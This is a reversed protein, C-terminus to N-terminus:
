DADVLFHLSYLECDPPVAVTYNGKDIALSEGDVFTMAEDSDKGHLRMLAFDNPNKMRCYILQELGGSQQPPYSQWHGGAVRIERCLLKEAEGKQLIHSVRYENLGGGVTETKMDEPRILRPPFRGEVKARAYAVEADTHPSLKYHYHPPLYVVYPLGDFVNKRGQFTWSHNEKGIVEMTVDGSLFVICVEDEEAEGNIVQGPLFKYIRLSVLQSFGTISQNIDVPRSVEGVGELTIFRNYDSPIKKNMMEKRRLM